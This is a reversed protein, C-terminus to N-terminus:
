ARPPDDPAIVPAPMSSCCCRGSSQRRGSGRTSIWGRESRPWVRTSTDSSPRPRVWSAAAWPRGSRSTTSTRSRWCVSRVTSFSSRSAAGFTSCALMFGPTPRRSRTIWSSRSPSRPPRGSSPGIPLPLVPYVQEARVHLAERSTVLLKIDPCAHLLQAATSAAETVQEFNDLVLLMRRERLQDALEELLPRDLGEGLGIVRTIAVLVSDTDRAAALDVFFVGDPFNEVQDAAARIALSTKGTGGPGTLTLLRVTPDGIRQAIQELEAGRGVFAETRAPLNSPERELTALPPFIATLDPHMLQFVREPRGLDKLRHEGLDRLTAGDRLGDVALAAASASLLVQGGHGASMIRATRNVTPGFYDGAQREAQGAHLGMRVRLAGTEAWRERGLGRQAALSAAVGDVATQFVAMMGDGTTKIVRGSSGAIAARLISDHRNLAGKMAESFREWLQTSGALDTFLFTLTGAAVDPDSPGRSRDVRLRYDNCPREAHARGM